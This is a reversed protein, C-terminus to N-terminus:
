YQTQITQEQECSKCLIYKGARKGCKACDGSVANMKIHDEHGDEKAENIVQDVTKIYKKPYVEEM